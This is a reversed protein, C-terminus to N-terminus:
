EGTEGDGDEGVELVDGDGDDVGDWELVYGCARAPVGLLRRVRGDRSGELFMCVAGLESRLRGGLWWVDGAAGMMLAMWWALIVLAPVERRGLCEYFDPMLRGMFNCYHHFSRPSRELELLPTLMRLPWVYPNNSETDDESVINCLAALDPHLDIPGPRHDEFFANDSRTSMFTTFWISQPLYSSTLSLLHRLGSQMTLWSLAHPNSDITYIFSTKRPDNSSSSPDLMFTHSTLLLCTSFLADMNKPSAGHSLERAYQSISRQWHHSELMTYTTRTPSSAPTLHLLHSLSTALVAHMVTPSSLALHTMRTRMLNFSNKDSITSATASHFHQLAHLHHHRHAQPLQLLSDLNSAIDTLSLTYATRDPHVLNSVADLENGRSIPAYTCDVGHKQCRLCHPKTEDCKVRRLKCKQCGGRSKRHARRSHYAAQSADGANQPRLQVRFISKQGKMRPSLDASM